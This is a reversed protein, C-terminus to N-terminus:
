FVTILVVGTVMVVSGILRERIREEKFFLWGYLVSFIMSTRKVSIMYAVEVQGIALFHAIVMIAFVSGMLLFIPARAKITDAAKRERFIVYPLFFMSFITTYAAAFFMPSSHLVAIKGLNSTISYIFAVAVMLISGKERAIARIPAFFGKSYSNLNLLYAGIAILIIGAMGSLDPLEGLMLFSTVILFVPTLALFPITLSLPSIKISRIYLLVAVLELPLALITAAWFTQDLSPIEIFLLTTLLIPASFGWSAWAVVEEKSDKLAHKSLADVTALTVASTLSLLFWVM